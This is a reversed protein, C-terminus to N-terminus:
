GRVPVRIELVSSLDQRGRVTFKVKVQIGENESGAYDASVEELLVYPMWQSVQSEIRDIIKAQVEEDNPGFLFEILNCGLYYHVPREGWNTLILSKLNQKTADLQDTTFALYGVSSTTHAYPMTLGIPNAM